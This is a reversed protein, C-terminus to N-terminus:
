ERPILTVTFDDHDGVDVEFYGVTTYPPPWPGGLVGWCLDSFANVPVQRVWPGAWEKGGGRAYVYWYRNELDNEYVPWCTGPDLPWWGMLQFSGEEPPCLVPDFFMISVYIRESYGNCVTLSM